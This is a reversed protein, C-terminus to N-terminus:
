ETPDGSELYRVDAESLPTRSAAINQRMRAGSGSSLVAFLNMGSAFLYRVAIEAVTCGDRAALREARALRAM